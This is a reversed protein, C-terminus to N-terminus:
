RGSNIIKRALEKGLQINDEKNGYIDKKVIKGNIQYVGLLYLDKGEIKTFSGILSHCDGNLAKMFSREAEVEIRAEKNDINKFYERNVGEKLCEVGLAGQGIAPLFVEPNFYDTILNELGLRKLGASALIIGDLNESNMKELRTQVNGRISVIELDSRLEKLLYEMKQYLLM